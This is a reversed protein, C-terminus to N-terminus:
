DPSIFMYTSLKINTGGVERMESHSPRTQVAKVYGSNQLDSILYISTHIFDLFPEHLGELDEPASSLTIHSLAGIHM